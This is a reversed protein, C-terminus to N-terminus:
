PGVLLRGSLEHTGDGLRVVLEDNARGGADIRGVDVPILTSGVVGGDMLEVSITGRWPLETTNVVTLELAARDDGAIAAQM